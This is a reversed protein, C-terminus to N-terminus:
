ASHLILVNILLLKELFVKWKRKLSQPFYRFEVSFWIFLYPLYVACQRESVCLRLPLFLARFIPGKSLNMLQPCHVIFSVLVM